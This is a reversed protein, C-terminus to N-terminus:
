LVFQFNKPNFSSTSGVSALVILGAMIATIEYCPYTMDGKELRIDGLKEHVLNLPLDNMMVLQQAAAMIKNCEALKLIAITIEDLIKNNKTEDVIADIDESVFSETIPEKLAVPFRSPPLTLLGKAINAAKLPEVENTDVNYIGINEIDVINENITTCIGDFHRRFWDIMKKLKKNLQDLQMTEAFDAIEGLDTRLDAREPELLYSSQPQEIAIKEQREKREKRLRSQKGM